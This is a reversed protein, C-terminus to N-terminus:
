RWRSDLIRIDKEELGSAHVATILAMADQYSADPDIDIETVHQHVSHKPLSGIIDIIESNTVTENDFTARGSADLHIQVKHEHPRDSIRCGGRAYDNVYRSPKNPFGLMIVVLLAAFVGVLPVININSLLGPKAEVYDNRMTTKPQSLGVTGQVETGAPGDRSAM